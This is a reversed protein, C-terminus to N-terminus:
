LDFCGAPNNIMLSLTRWGRSLVLNERTPVLSHLRHSPPLSRQPSRTISAASFQMHSGELVKRVRVHLLVLRLCGHSM